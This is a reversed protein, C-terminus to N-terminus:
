GGLAHKGLPREAQPTKVTKIPRLTGSQALVPKVAPYQKIFSKVGKKM